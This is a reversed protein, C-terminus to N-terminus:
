LYCIKKLGRALSSLLLYHMNITHITPDVWGSFTPTTRPTQPTHFQVPSIVPRMDSGGVQPETLSFLSVARQAAVSVCLKVKKFSCSHTRKGLHRKPHMVCDCSLVSPEPLLYPSPDLTPKPRTQKDTSHNDKHFCLVCPVSSFGLPPVTTPFHLLHDHLLFPYLPLKMEWSHWTVSTLMTHIILGWCGSLIDWILWPNM